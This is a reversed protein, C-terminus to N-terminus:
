KKPRTETKQVMSMNMGMSQGEGKVKMGMEMSTTNTGYSAMTSLNVVNTGSGVAEFKTFDVEAGPPLGPMQFPGDGRKMVMDFSMEITDGQIKTLTIENTALLQMGAMNMDMDVTWKAGQGVPEAPFQAMNKMFGDVMSQLAQYLEDSGKSDVDVQEVKGTKPDILMRFSTGELPKMGALMPERMEPAVGEVSMHTYGITVPLLGGQVPQGVEQHMGMIVTPSLDGMGPLPFPQGDPGIMEMKMNQSNVVELDVVSGPKPQFHLVQHPKAGADVLKIDMSMQMGELVRATASEATPPNALAVSSLLLSAVLSM